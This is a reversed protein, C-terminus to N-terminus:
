RFPLMAFYHSPHIEYRTNCPVGLINSIFLKDHNEIIAADTMDCSSSIWSDSFVGWDSWVILTQYNESFMCDKVIVQSSYSGAQPLITAPCHPDVPCNDVGAPCGQCGPGVIRIAAGSAHAFTCDQINIFGQDTNNNGVHLQNKGGRFSMFSVSLREVVAGAFVDCDSNLQEVTAIGEGAIRLLAFYCWTTDNGLPGCDKRGLDSPKVNSLNITDSVKYHGAPFRVEPEFVNGQGFVGDRAMASTANYFAQQIAHTSDRQGSPDAGFDTVVFLGPPRQARVLAGLERLERAQAEILRFADGLQREDGARQVDVGACNHMTAALACALLRVPLPPPMYGRARKLASRQM